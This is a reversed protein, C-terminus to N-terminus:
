SNFFEMSVGNVIESPTNLEHFSVYEQETGFREIVEKRNLKSDRGDLFSGYSSHRYEKFDKVFGHKQPNQHIYAMMNTFYADNDIEIRHFPEEFFGGTRSYAKNIAQAYSKFFSSFANSVIWEPSKQLHKGELFKRIELESKIKVLFHFHNRLLCYAFTEVFPHVYKAYRELFYTYNKEQIFITQGNIGRNYIHYYKAPELTIRRTNM